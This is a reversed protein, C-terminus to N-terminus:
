LWTFRVKYIFDHRAQIKTCYEDNITCWFETLIRAIKICLLHHISYSTRSIKLTQNLAHNHKQLPPKLTPNNRVNQKWATKMCFVYHKRHECYEESLLRSCPFYSSLKCNRWQVRVFLILLKWNSGRKSFNKHDGTRVLGVHIYM